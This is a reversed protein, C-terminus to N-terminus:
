AGGGIALGRRDLAARLDALARVVHKEVAAVSLGLEAAIAAIPQGDLRRRFFVERRLAPMARLARTLVEVRERYALIEDARPAPCAIDDPLDAAIPTARLRRVHDRILNRAVAFCFAGVDAVSRTQRYDCLRLYTEQVLDESDSRDRLRAEVFRQLARRLDADDRTIHRREIIPALETM